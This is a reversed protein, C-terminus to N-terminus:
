LQLVGFLSSPDGHLIYYYMELIHEESLSLDLAYDSDAYEFGAYVGSLM